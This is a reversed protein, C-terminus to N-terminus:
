QCSILFGDSISTAGHIIIFGHWHWWCLYNTANVGIRDDDGHDHDQNDDDDDGADDVDDVDHGPMPHIPSFALPSFGFTALVCGHFRVTIIM